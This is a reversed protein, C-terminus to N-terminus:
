GGGLLIPIVSAYEPCNQRVGEVQQKRFRDGAPSNAYVSAMVRATDSPTNGPDPNDLLLCATNDSASSVSTSPSQTVTSSPDVGPTSSFSCGALVLVGCMLALSRACTM